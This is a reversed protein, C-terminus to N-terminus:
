QVVLILNYFYPANTDADQIIFNLYNIQNGGAQYNWGTPLSGTFQSSTLTGTMTEALTSYTFTTRLSSSMAYSGTPLDLTYGTGIPSQVSSIAVTDYGGADINFPIASGSSFVLSGTIGFPVVYSTVYPKLNITNTDIYTPEDIYAIRAYVKLSTTASYVWMSNGIPVASNVYSKDLQADYIAYPDPMGTGDRLNRELLQVAVDRLRQARTSTYTPTIFDFAEYAVVDINILEDRGGIMDYGLNQSTTVFVNLVPGCDIMNSVADQSVINTGVEIRAPMKIHYEPDSGLKTNATAVWVSLNSELIVKIKDLIHRYAEFQQMLAM